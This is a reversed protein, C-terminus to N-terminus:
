LVTSRGLRQPATQPEHANPLHVGPVDPVLSLHSLAHWLEGKRSYLSPHLKCPLPMVGAWSQGVRDQALERFLSLPQFRLMAPAGSGVPCRPGLERCSKFMGKKQNRGTQPCVAELVNLGPKESHRLYVLCM